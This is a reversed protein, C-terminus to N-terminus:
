RQSEKFRRRRRKNAALRSASNQRRKVFQVLNERPVLMSAGSPASAIREKPVVIEGQKILKLIHNVTVSFFEAVQDVRFSNQTRPVLTEADIASM